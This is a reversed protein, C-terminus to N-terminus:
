EAAHPSKRVPTQAQSWAGPALTTKANLVEIGVVRGEADLDLVVGPAVESGEHPRSDSLAIYVADAEPDYTM